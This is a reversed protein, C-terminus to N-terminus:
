TGDTDRSSNWDPISRRIFEDVELKGYNLLGLLEVDNGLYFTDTIKHPTTKDKATYVMIYSEFRKKFEDLIEQTTFDELALPLGIRNRPM